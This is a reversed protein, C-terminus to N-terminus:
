HSAAQDIIRAPSGTYSVGNPSSKIFDVLTDRLKREYNILPAPSLGKVFFDLGSGGAALFDAVVVTYNRSPDLTDISVIPDLFVKSEGAGNTITRTTKLSSNYTIKLGSVQQVAQEHSYWITILDRVQTGTLKLTAVYNDFPLVQFIQNYNVPGAPIEARVGGNNQFSIDAHTSCASDSFCNRYADTMFDAMTSEPSGKTLSTLTKGLVQKGIADAAAIDKAILAIAKSDPTVAGGLFTPAVLTGLGQSCGQTDPYVQQCFDYTRGDVVESTGDAAHYSLTVYGFSQGYKGAIIVRTGNYVTNVYNHTHGGLIVAISKRTSDKLQDVTAFIEDTPACIGQTCFGGSHAIVVIVDVGKEKMEPVYRELAQAMPFFRLRSVNQPMTTQPTATTTLGIVGVNVGHVSSIIYPRTFSTTQFTAANKCQGPDEDLSCTNASLFPFKAQSMRAKLAGLPDEGPKQVITDPGVPGFDFDHNGIATATYGAYNFFKVVPAGEAENSVITGQFLDGSDLLLTEPDFKKAANFYGSVYDVGGALIGSKLAQAQLYGHVDTTSILHITADPKAMAPSRGFASIGLGCVTVLAM